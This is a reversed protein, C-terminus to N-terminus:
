ARHSETPQTQATDERRPCARVSSLNLTNYCIASPSQVTEYNYGLESM